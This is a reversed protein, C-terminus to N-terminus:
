SNIFIVPHGDDLSDHQDGCIRLEAAHCENPECGYQGGEVTIDCELQYSDFNKLEEFLQRYTM